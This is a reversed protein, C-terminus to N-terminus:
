SSKQIEAWFQHVFLREQRSIGEHAKAIRVLISIFRTKASDNIAFSNKGLSQLHTTRSKDSLALKNEQIFNAFFSIDSREIFPYTEIIGCTGIAQIIEETKGLVTASPATRQKLYPTHM